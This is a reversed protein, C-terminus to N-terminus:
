EGQSVHIGVEKKQTGAREFNRRTALFEHPKHDRRLRTEKGDPKPEEEAEKSLLGCDVLARQVGLDYAAKKVREPLKKMSPTHEAWRHLTGKPLEGRAEAAAM